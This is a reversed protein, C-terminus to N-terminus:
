IEKLVAEVRELKIWWTSGGNKLQYSIDTELGKARWSASATIAIVEGIEGCSTKLIQGVQHRPKLTVEYSM